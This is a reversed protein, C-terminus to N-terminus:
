LKKASLLALSGTVLDVQSAEDIIVYDFMYDEDICYRLSHTTSLIIPYEKSLSLLNENIIGKTFYLGKLTKVTNKCLETKLLKMSVDTYEQIIQEFNDRQLTNKITEIENKLLSKKSDYYLMQLNLVVDEPNYKGLNYIGYLILFKLKTLMNLPKNNELLFQYKVIFSIIREPSPKYLLIRDINKSSRTRYYDNFYKQETLLESLEQKLMASKNQMLLM